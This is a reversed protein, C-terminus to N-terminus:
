KKKKKKAAHRVATGIVLTSLAAVTKALRTGGRIVHTRLAGFDQEVNESAKRIKKAVFRVERLIFIAYGLAVLVGISIIIVAISTIFFFIDAHAIETM